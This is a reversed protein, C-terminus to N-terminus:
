TLLSLSEITVPKQFDPLRKGLEAKVKATDLRHQVQVSYSIRGKYEHRGTKRFHEKLVDSTTDLETQLEVLKRKAKEWRDAAQAVTIKPM